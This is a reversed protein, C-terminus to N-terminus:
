LQPLSALLAARLAAARTPDTVKDGRAKDRV